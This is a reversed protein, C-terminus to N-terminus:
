AAALVRLFHGSSFILFMEGPRSRATLWEILGRELREPHNGERAVTASYSGARASSMSRLLRDVRTNGTTRNSCPATARPKTTSALWSARAPLGSCPVRLRAPSGRSKSTALPRANNEGRETLPLNTRGMHHGSRSRAPQGHSALYIVLLEENM